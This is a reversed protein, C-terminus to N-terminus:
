ALKNLHNFCNWEGGRLHDKEQTSVFDGLIFFFFGAHSAHSALVTLILACVSSNHQRFSLQDGHYGSRLKAERQTSQRVMHATTTDNWGSIITFIKYKTFVRALWDAHLNRESMAVTKDNVQCVATKQKYWMLNHDRQWKTAWLDIVYYNCRQEGADLKDQFCLYLVLQEHGLKGRDTYSFQIM